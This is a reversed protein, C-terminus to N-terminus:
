FPQKRYSVYYYCLSHCDIEFLFTLTSPKEDGREKLSDTLDGQEFLRMTQFVDFM